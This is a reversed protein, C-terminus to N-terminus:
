RRPEPGDDYLPPEADPDVAAALDDAPEVIIQPVYGAPWSECPTIIHDVTQTTGFISRRCVSRGIYGGSSM